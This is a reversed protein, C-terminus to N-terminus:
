RRYALLGGGDSLLLTQRPGSTARVVGLSAGGRPLVEDYVVERAASFVILRWLGIDRPAAALVALYPPEPFDLRVDVASALRFDGLGYEFFLRGDLDFARVARSGGIVSRARPWDLLKYRYDDGPLALEKLARGEADWIWVRGASAVAVVLAPQGDEGARADLAHVLGNVTREWLVKGSRDLRYVSQKSAAYFEPRGDGDLDRPLLAIPALTADPRFRWRMRGQLDLVEVESYGGGTQVIVLESGDRVLRSFSNWKRIAGDSFAITGKEAGSAPDILVVGGSAISAIREVPATDFEGAQYWAPRRSLRTQQFFSAGLVVRPPGIREKTSVVKGLGYPLLDARFVAITAVAVCVVGVVVLLSRGVAHARRWTWGIAWGVGMGAPLALCLLYVPSFILLLPATSGRPFLFVEARVYVEGVLVAIAGGIQSWWDSVWRPLVWLAAYPVLAWAALAVLFPSLAGGSAIVTTGLVLAVGIWCTIRVSAVPRAGFVSNRETVANMIAVAMAQEVPILIPVPPRVAISRGYPGIL